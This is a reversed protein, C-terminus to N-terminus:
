FSSNFKKDGFQSQLWLNRILSLLEDYPRKESPEPLFLCNQFTSTQCLALSNQDQLNFSSSPQPVAILSTRSNLSIEKVNYRLCQYLQFHRFQLFQHEAILTLTRCELMDSPPFNQKEQAQDFPQCPSHLLYFIYSGILSLFAATVALFSVSCLLALRSRYYSFRNFESFVPETHSPKQFFTPPFSSTSKSPNTSISSSSQEQPNNLSVLVDIDNNDACLSLFSYLQLHYRIYIKSYVASM